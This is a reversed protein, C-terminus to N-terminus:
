TQSDRETKYTLENRDNRNLTWRYPIDYLIERKKIQRVESVIVIQIAMWTAAFPMLANKQNAPHYEMAYIDVDEKDM